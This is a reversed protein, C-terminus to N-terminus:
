RPITFLASVRMDCTCIIVIYFTVVSNRIITTVVANLPYLEACLFNHSCRIALHLDYLTRRVIRETTESKRTAVTKTVIRRSVTWTALEEM